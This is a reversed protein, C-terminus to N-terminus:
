EKVGWKKKLSNVCDILRNDDLVGELRYELDGLQLKGNENNIEVRESLRKDLLFPKEEYRVIDYRPDERICGSVAYGSVFIGGYFMARGFSEFFGM